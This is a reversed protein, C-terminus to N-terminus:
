QIFHLGVWIVTKLVKPGRCKPIYREGGGDLCQPASVKTIYTLWFCRRRPTKAIPCIESRLESSITGVTLNIVHSRVFNRATPEARTFNQGGPYAVWNLFTPIHVFLMRDKLNAGLQENPPFSSFLLVVTWVWCVHPGGSPHVTTFILGSCM